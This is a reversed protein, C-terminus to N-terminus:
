VFLRSPAKGIEATFNVLVPDFWRKERGLAIQANITELLAELVCKCGDDAKPGIRLEKNGHLRDRVVIQWIQPKERPRVKPM